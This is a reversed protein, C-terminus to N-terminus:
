RAESHLSVMAEQNLSSSEIIPLRMRITAGGDPRNFASLEGGHLKVARVAIALGVGSGGTDSTRSRDVRYFPLFISHLENEPIGPGRDNVELIAVREAQELASSLQIEIESGPETYRIANRIINEIARHLLQRNGLLICQDKAHFTVSSHRQQAEYAADPIM